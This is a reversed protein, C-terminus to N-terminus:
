SHELKVDIVIGSETVDMPSNAKLLQELRVDIIIELETVDM